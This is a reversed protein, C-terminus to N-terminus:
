ASSPAPSCTSPVPGSRCPPPTVWVAKSPPGPWLWCPPRRPSPACCSPPRRPPWPCAADACTAPWPAPRGRLACSSPWRAGAPATTSTSPACSGRWTPPRRPRPPPSSSRCGPRHRCPGQRGTLPDTRDPPVPTRASVPSPRGPLATRPRAPSRCAHPRSRGCGHSLPRAATGPAWSCAAPAWGAATRRRWWSAPPAAASPRSPSTPIGWSSSRRGTARRTLVPSPRWSAPRPPPATRTTTSSSSSPCRARSPSPTPRGPPWPRSPATRSAPPTWAAPRAADSPARGGRPTGPACCPPRAPGCPCTWAGAGSRSTRPAWM